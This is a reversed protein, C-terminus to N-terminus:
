DPLPKGRTEPLFLIAVMGVVYVLGIYFAAHGVGGLSAALTGTLFAGAVAPIRAGNFITGLASARVRTPFLEAAHTTYWSFAGGATFGFLVQLAVALNVNTVVLFIAATMILAGLLYGFGVAKRGIRDVAFGFLICGLIEGFNYIASSVGTYFNVDAKTALSGVYSPLYSSGAWWSLTIGLSVLLALLLPRRLGPSFLEHILDTTKGVRRQTWRKSEPIVNRYYLIVLVPLIGVVYIYRWSIDFNQFIVWVGSVVLGGVSLGAQLLGAGRTRYKAPWVEQILSTGVAWESGIGIGTLFRGLALLWWTTSLASLGTFVGYIVVAYIMTRRRGLRDGVYGGVVGGLTWGGLTIALLYGFYKLADAREAVPLLAHMSHVGTVIVAFTEYGDFAWFAMTIALVAWDERRLGGDLGSHRGSQTSLETTM